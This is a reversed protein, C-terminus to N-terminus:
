FEYITNSFKDSFEVGGNKSHHISLNKEKKTSIRESFQDWKLCAWKQIKLKSKRKGELQQNALIEAVAVPHSFYKEGSKRFQGEHAKGALMKAENILPTDKM